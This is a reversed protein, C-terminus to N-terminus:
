RPRGGGAWPYDWAPSGPDGGRAAWEWEAETPLRFGPADWAPPDPEGAPTLYHRLVQGNIKYVPEYGSGGNEPLASWESYANCWLIIDRYGSLGGVGPMYELTGAHEGGALNASGAILSGSGNFTYKKDGRAGDKAWALVQAHLRYSVETAGLKFPKVPVPVTGAAAFPRGESGTNKTVTGGPVSVLRHMRSEVDLFQATVTVDAAPLVFSPALEDIAGGTGAGSYALTGPVAICGQDPNVQVLIETGEPGSEPKVRISGPGDPLTLVRYEEPGDGSDETPCAGLVLAGLVVALFVTHKKM